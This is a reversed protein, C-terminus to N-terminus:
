AEKMISNMLFIYLMISKQAKRGPTIFYERSAAQFDAMRVMGLQVLLDVKILIADVDLVAPTTTTIVPAPVTGEPTEPATTTTTTNVAAAAVAEAAM